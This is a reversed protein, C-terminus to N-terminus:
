MSANKLEKNILEGIAVADEDSFDEPKHMIYGCRGCAIIDIYEDSKTNCVNHYNCKPCKEDVKVMHM